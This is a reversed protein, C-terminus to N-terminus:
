RRGINPYVVNKPIHKLKELTEMGEEFNEIKLHETPKIGTISPLFEQFFRSGIENIFDGIIETDENIYCPVWVHRDLNSDPSYAVQNITIYVFADFPEKAYKRSIISATLGVFHSHQLFYNGDNVLFILGKAKPKNMLIRTEKIQKIAKHLAREITKSAASFLDDLCVKPLSGIGLSLRIIDFDTLYDKKKWVEVLQSIRDADDENSFLDKKFCKLEAIIEPNEFYYDANLSSLKEIFLTSVLSGGLFRVFKNMTDEVDIPTPRKLNDM